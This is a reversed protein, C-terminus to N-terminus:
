METEQLKMIIIIIIIIILGKHKVYGCLIDILIDCETKSLILFTESLLKLFSDICVNQISYNKEWM